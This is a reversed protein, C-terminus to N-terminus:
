TRSLSLSLSLSLSHSNEECKLRTKVGMKVKTGKVPGAVLEVVGLRERQGVQQRVGLVLAQHLGLVLVPPRLGGPYVGEVRVVRVTLTRDGGRFHQVTCHGVSLQAVALLAVRKITCCKPTGM